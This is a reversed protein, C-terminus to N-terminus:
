ERKQWDDQKAYALGKDTLKISRYTHPTKTIYGAEVMRNIHNNVSMVNVPKGEPHYRRLAEGIQRTSPIENHQAQYDLIARLILHQWWETSRKINVGNM